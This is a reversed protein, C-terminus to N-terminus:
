AATSSAGPLRKVFALRESPAFGAAHFFGLLETAGSSVITEVREIDLAGLNLFLQSLLAHGIGRHAYEPAVGITDIVAVPETRGFDGLDARAMLYGAMVGDHRAALSIRVGSERLAEDLAHQIYARRERGTIHRDIRVLDDVDKATLLSVEADDRALREYDNAPASWDNPDGRPEAQDVPRERAGFPSARMACEIVREAALAYGLRDLFGLMAHDRWVSITHMEGISRKAAEAELAAHLARGAGRRQGDPAVSIVELRLAPRAVGFEGELVRGLAHGCFAGDAEAAFQLHLDPQRLAAALRREFYARRTRGAFRADLAVVADVDGRALRRVKLQRVREM